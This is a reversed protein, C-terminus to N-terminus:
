KQLKQLQAGLNLRGLTWWHFHNLGDQELVVVLVHMQQKNLERSVFHREPQTGAEGLGERWV